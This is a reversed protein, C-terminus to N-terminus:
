TPAKIQQQRQNYENTLSQLLRRKMAIDSKKTFHMALLQKKIQKIENLRMKKASRNDMYDHDYKFNKSYFAYHKLCYIVKNNWLLKCQRQQDAGKCFKDYICENMNQFTAFVTNAMFLGVLVTLLLILGKKKM